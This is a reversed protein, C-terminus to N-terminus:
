NQITDLKQNESVNVNINSGMILQTFLKPACKIKPDLTEFVYINQCPGLKLVNKPWFITSIDSRAGAKRKAPWTYYGLCTSLLKVQNKQPAAGGWKKPVWGRTILGKSLSPGPGPKLLGAHPCPSLIVVPLYPSGVGPAPTAGTPSLGSIFLGRRDWGM